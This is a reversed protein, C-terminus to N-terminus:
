NRWTIADVKVEDLWNPVTATGETDLSISVAAGRGSSEADAAFDLQMSVVADEISGDSGICLHSSISIAEPKPLSLSHHVQAKPGSAWVQMKKGNGKGGLKFSWANPSTGNDKGNDGTGSGDGKGPAGGGGHGAGCSGGVSSAM